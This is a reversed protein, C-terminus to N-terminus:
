GLISGNGRHPARGTRLDGSAALAALLATGACLLLFGVPVTIWGPLDDSVGSILCIALVFLTAIAAFTPILKM